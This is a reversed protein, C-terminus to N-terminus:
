IKENQLGGLSMRFIMKASTLRRAASSLMYEVALISLTVM